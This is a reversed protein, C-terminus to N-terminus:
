VQHSHKNWDIELPTVLRSANIHFDHKKHSNLANFKIVIGENHHCPFITLIEMHFVSLCVCEFSELLPSSQWYLLSRRSLALSFSSSAAAAAAVSNIKNKGTMGFMSNSLPRNFISASVLFSLSFLCSLATLRFENILTLRTAKTSRPM